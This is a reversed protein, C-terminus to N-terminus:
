RNLLYKQCIQTYFLYQLDCYGIAFVKKMNLKPENDYRKGKAM